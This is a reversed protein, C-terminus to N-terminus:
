QKERIQEATKGFVGKVDNSFNGKETTGKTM